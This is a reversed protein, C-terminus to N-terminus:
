PKGGTAPASRAAFLGVLEVPRPPPGGVSRWRVTVTVRRALPRLKDAAGVRVELGWGREAYVAPLRRGAAWDPTLEEWPLARASELVNAALEQASQRDAARARERLALLGVEAVLALAVGLIGLTAMIEAITFGGRPFHVEARRM